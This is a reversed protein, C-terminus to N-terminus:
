GIACRRAVYGSEAYECEQEHRMMKSADHKVYYRIMAYVMTQVPTLTDAPDQGLVFEMTLANSVPLRDAAPLSNITDIVRSSFYVPTAM